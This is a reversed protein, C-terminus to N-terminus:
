YESCNCYPTTWDFGIQPLSANWRPEDPLRMFGSAFSPGCLEEKRLVDKLKREGETIEKDLGEEKDREM